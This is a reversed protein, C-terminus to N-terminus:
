LNIGRENLITRINDKVSWKERPTFSQWVLYTAIGGLVTTSLLIMLIFELIIMKYIGGPRDYYM